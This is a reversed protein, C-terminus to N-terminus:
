VASIRVPNDYVIISDEVEEPLRDAFVMVVADGRDTSRQIRKYISAKDEVQIRGRQSSRKYRPTCLDSLLEEDDPLIVEPEGREKRSPDLLERMGWWTASRRNLFELEGSQDTFPSASSANFFEVDYGQERLRHGVGAGIGNTDVVAYTFNPQGHEAIANCIMGTVIMTDESHFAVLPVCEYGVRIAIVSSDGSGGVDCSVANALGDHLYKKPAWPVENRHLYVQEKRREEALTAGRLMAAEAWSLPILGDQADVAFQGLVKNQFIASDRGWQKARQEVTEEKIRGAKIAEELTVYRVWWDEYGAAKSQIEYFRGNPEGPTSIAFALIEGAGMLAGEIADFTGASVTKAEDIIYLIHDAHAGEINAPDDSSVAFAQGYELQLQTRLLETRHDFPKRGLSEWALANDKTWKHIEPWLYKTLQREVSATTVIKWDGGEARCMDERTLAFWIILGSVMTTKGLSHPGRVCIKKKILLNNVCEKQYKNYKLGIIFDRVFALPDYWYDKLLPKSKAPALLAAAEAYANSM